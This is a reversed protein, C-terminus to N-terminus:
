PVTSDSACGSEDESDSDSDSDWTSTPVSAHARAAKIKDSILETEWEEVTQVAKTQRRTARAMYFAERNAVAQQTKLFKIWAQRTREDKLKRDFSSLRTRRRSRNSPAQDRHFRARPARFNLM